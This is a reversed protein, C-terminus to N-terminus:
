EDDLPSAARRVGSVGDEEPLHDICFRRTVPRGIFSVRGCVDCVCLERDYTERNSLVDVAFLSLVIGSLPATPEPRAVWRSAGAILRRRVRGTFISAALFRDDTPTMTLGRLSTIVRSRALLLVKSVNAETERTSLGSPKLAIYGAPHENVIAVRNMIGTAMVHQEFWEGLERAGWQSAGEIFALGGVLARRDTFNSSFPITPMASLKAM